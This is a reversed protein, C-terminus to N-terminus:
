YIYIFFLNKFKTNIKNQKIKKNSCISAFSGKTNSTVSILIKNRKFKRSAKKLDLYSKNDIKIRM